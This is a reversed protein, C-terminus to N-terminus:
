SFIYKHMRHLMLRGLYEISSPTFTESLILLLKFTSSNRLMKNLLGLKVHTVM